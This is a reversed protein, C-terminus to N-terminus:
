FLTYTICNFELIIESIAYKVYSIIKGENLLTKRSNRFLKIM